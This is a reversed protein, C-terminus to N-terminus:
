LETVSVEFTDYHKSVTAHEYLVHTVDEVISSLSTSM